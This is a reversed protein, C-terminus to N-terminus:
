EDQSSQSTERAIRIIQEEMRERIMEDRIRQNEFQDRMRENDYQHEKVMVDIQKDVGSDRFARWAFLVVLLALPLGVMGIFLNRMFGFQNDINKNHADLRKLEIDINAIKLDIYEKVRKESATIEVQIEERLILRIKNLDDDTLEAFTPMAIACFLISLFIISKM